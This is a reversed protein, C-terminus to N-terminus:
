PRLREWVAAANFTPYRRRLRDRAAEEILGQLTRPELAGDLYALEAAAAERAQQACHPDDEYLREHFVRLADIAALARVEPPETQADVAVFALRLADVAESPDAEEPLLVLLSSPPRPPAPAPPPVSPSGLEDKMACLTFPRRVRRNKRRRAAVKDVTALIIPVSLGRDLWTLLLKGDAASLFPAGGRLMVVYRSVVEAARALEADVASLGHSLFPAEDEESLWDSAPV